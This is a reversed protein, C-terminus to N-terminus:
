PSIQVAKSLLLLLHPWSTSTQLVQSDVCDDLKGYRRDPDLQLATHCFAEALDQPLRPLPLRQLFGKIIAAVIQPNARGRFTIEDIVANRLDDWTHLHGAASPLHFQGIQLIKDSHVPEVKSFETMAEDILLHIKERRRCSFWSMLRLPTVDRLAPDAAAPYEQLM